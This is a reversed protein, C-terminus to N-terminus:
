LRSNHTDHLGPLLHLVGLEDALTDVLDAGSEYRFNGVDLLAYVDQQLLLVQFTEIVVLQAVECLINRRESADKTPKSSKPPRSSVLIENTAIYSAGENPPIESLYPNEIAYPRNSLNRANLITREARERKNPRLLVKTVCVLM